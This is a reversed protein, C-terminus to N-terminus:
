IKLSRTVQSPHVNFVIAIEKNTLGKQSLERMCHTRVDILYQNEIKTRGGKNKQANEKAM